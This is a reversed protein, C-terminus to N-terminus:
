GKHMSLYFTAGKDPEAEAWVLGGHLHVIRQVIALGVGTGEFESGSHFRQFVGFLKKAYRMDFGVGNDRIFFVIQGPDMPGPTQPATESGTADAPRTACEAMTRWGVEIVAHERKSSYKVANGLLNIWVQRMLTPDGMAQPLASVRFDIRQRSEPTTLEQFLSNVLSAMNLPIPHLAARGLRSFALLDDILRGMQRASESIVSCVRRGEDELRPGFDDALIRTFGSIARLPARLDHSVSYTFAELDKNAAELQATREDVRRELEANLQRIDAEAKRRETVDMAMSIVLRRGDPLRGLPASSFDWIRTSGDKIHIAYDGESVKHDLAYLRDIYSIVQQKREGYARESWDGITALEERTYGTIDYWSQSTQIIEGDEAHLLIPFPSEVVAKRFREESERLATLARERSKLEIRLLSSLLGATVLVFAWGKYISWHLVTAPDDALASLLRDSLLIYLGSVVVYPLVIRLIAPTLASKM